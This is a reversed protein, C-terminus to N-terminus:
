SKDESKLAARAELFDNVIKDTEQNSMWFPGYYVQGQMDYGVEMMGIDHGNPLTDLDHLHASFALLVERLGAEASLARASALRSQVYREIIEYADPMESLETSKPARARYLQILKNLLFRVEERADSSVTEESEHAEAHIRPPGDFQAEDLGKKLWDPLAIDAKKDTDYSM